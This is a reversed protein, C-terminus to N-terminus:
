NKENGFSYIDIKNEHAAIINLSLSSKERERGKIDDKM